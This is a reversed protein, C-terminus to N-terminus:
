KKAKKLWSLRMCVSRSFKHTGKGGPQIEPYKRAIEFLQRRGIGLIRCAEDARIEGDKREGLRREVAEAIAEIDERDLTM